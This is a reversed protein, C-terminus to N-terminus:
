STRFHLWGKGGKKLQQPKKVPESPVPHSGKTFREQKRVVDRVFKGWGGVKPDQAVSGCPRKEEAHRELVQGFRPPEYDRTAVIVTGRDVFLLDYDASAIGEARLKDDIRDQWLLRWSERLRDVFERWERGDMRSDRGSLLPCSDNISDEAIYKASM